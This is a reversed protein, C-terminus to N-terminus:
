PNLKAIFLQATYIVPETLIIPAISAKQFANAKTQANNVIWNAQNFQINGLELHQLM